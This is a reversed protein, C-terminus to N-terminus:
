RLAVLEGGDTVFYLVGNAVVPPVSVPGPLQTSGQIEGDYPSVTLAVGTSSAVILRDGALIPGVWTIPDERDEPDEWRELNRVWRVRGQGRNVAVLQADKTVVYIFDGAVWPMQKGGLQADWARLGRRMDIAAMRGSHSIAFVRDGDIVPLARIDALNSAQDTRNTAALNDNWLERGNEALLAFIEGSSYPVIVTSGSVAPSAAGLLGALEQFGAHQWLEAGDEANFAYIANDLTVAFVRGDAVTPAARMPAPVRGEWLVEGSGADLAFVRAFGTTVYLKGDAVALGGGFFGEDDEEPALDNRWVAQGSGADFASVQARSDMTYIRGNAVVPQTLIKGADDSSEGVSAVWSRQLGGPLAVHSMNHANNGGATPWEANSQAPPLTVQVDAIAPDAELGRDLSLIAIREGPLLEEDEEFWDEVTGCGAILLCLASVALSRLYGPMTM